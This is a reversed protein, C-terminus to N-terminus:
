ERKTLKWNPYNLERPRKTCIVGVMLLWFRGPLLIV